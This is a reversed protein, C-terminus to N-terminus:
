RTARFVPRVTAGRVLVVSCIPYDTDTCGTWDGLLFGRKVRAKLTVQAEGDFTARCIPPCSIGTPTSTV